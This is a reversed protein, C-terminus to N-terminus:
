RKEGTEFGVVFDAHGGGLGDLGGCLGAAGGEGNGGLFSGSCFAASSISRNFM